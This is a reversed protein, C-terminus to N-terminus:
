YGSPVGGKRFDAVGLISSPLVLASQVVSIGQMSGTKHGKAELGKRIVAPFSDELQIYVPVLQHHLRPRDVSAPLPLGLWLVDIINLATATTIKSGGAAGTVLTIKGTKNDVVIAPCMSSMPRKGPKIFNAPSAPLQFYNTSNPTSFDDMENNFIIGTRNGKVQSGFYTNITSTVSVANGDADIISIHATGHDNVEPITPDYYNTDFTSADNIKRRTTEGYALSQMNRVDETVNVFDEDGLNTRKGYGFKMAEVIRHHTLISDADTAVSAPTLNYGNLINLIYGLVPGSGPPPMSHVTINDRLNMVSPTTWKLTYNKMDDLTIIGGADRIDQVIDGALSGNYFSLPDDAIKQFTEALRPLKVPYGVPHINGNEDFYESFEQKMENTTLSKLATYVAETIPVGDRCLHVSPMVLDRWPTKGYRQHIEYLGKVEGPVAVALGGYLSKNRNEPLSFMHESAGGPATERSDVAHWTKNQAIYIVFFSGGGIGCSHSSMLGTAFLSAVTADIANGRRLELISNGIDSAIKSDAVVAASKFTASASKYLTNDTESGQGGQRVKDCNQSDKRLGIGLGVGLGIAIIIAGIIIALLILKTRNSSLKQPKM